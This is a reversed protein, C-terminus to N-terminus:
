QTIKEALPLQYFGGHEHAYKYTIMGYGPHSENELSFERGFEATGWSNKFYYVGKYTFEKEEGNEMKVKTTVVKNDDYGVILISHGAPHKPSEVADKSGAEPYGVIGKIWNNYDRGILYKDSYRHNWAGYYFTIGLTLPIGQRLLGKVQYTSYVSYYGGTMIFEQDRLQAAETRANLFQLDYFKSEPNSLEQDSTQILKEDRHGLLCSKYFNTGAFEKLRDCREKQLPFNTTEKWEQGIYPLSSEMPSGYRKLLNFNRYSHSGDGTKGKMALYELWEESLDVTNAFGRKIVLMSEAMATASFISCTGRAIQSKVLTQKSILSTTDSSSLEAMDQPLGELWLNRAELPRQDNVIPPTLHKYAPDLFAGDEEGAHASLGSCAILIAALKYWKSKQNTKM